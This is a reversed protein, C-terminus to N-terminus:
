TRRQARQPNRKERASQATPALSRAVPSRSRIMRSSGAQPGRGNRDSQPESRESRLTGCREDGRGRRRTGGRRGAEKSVPPQARAFADDGEGAAPLVDVGACCLALRSQLVVGQMTTRFYTAEGHACNTSTVALVSMATSGYTRSRARKSAISVKLKDGRLGSLAAGGGRGARRAGSGDNRVCRLCSTSPIALALCRYARQSSLAAEYASGPAFVSRTNGGQVRSATCAQGEEQENRALAFDSERFPVCGHRRPTFTRQARGLAVSLLARRPASRGRAINAGVALITLSTVCSTRARLVRMHLKRSYM